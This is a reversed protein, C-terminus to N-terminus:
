IVIEHSLVRISHSRHKSRVSDLGIVKLAQIILLLCSDQMLTILLDNLLGKKFLLALFFLAKPSLLLLLESTELDDVVTVELAFLSAHSLCCLISM